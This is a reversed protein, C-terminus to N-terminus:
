VIFLMQNTGEPINQELPPHLNYYFLSGKSSIEVESPFMKVLLEWIAKKLKMPLKLDIM